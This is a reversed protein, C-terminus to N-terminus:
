TGNIPLFVPKSQSLRQQMTTAKIRPLSLIGPRKFRQRFQRGLAVRVGTVLAQKTM